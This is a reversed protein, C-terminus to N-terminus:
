RGGGACACACGACACACACGGSRGGGGRSSSPAPPPPPNTAQTVGGTFDAINGVTNRAFDQVGTIISGAFASGPLTPMDFGGGGGGGSTSPAPASPRTSVTGGGFTPDYRPWWVPVFVPGTRFVDRTRDEYKKDLMTWEMVEDYKQSKVEPTDAAEVQAWARQIIDRYYDVTEKRSFGKMKQSVSKVLNVMMKQLAKKRERNNSFEFAQLFEVEYERLGEPLPSAINLQLPEKTVVTAANKKIAAFLIMTLIKDMPEEMLIAAEISTLGRKIGHGEIAIKPPMYQLKRNKDALYGGVFILAFVGFIIGFPLCISIATAAGEGLGGTGGAPRGRVIAGEPVYSAPFSSGFIYLDNLTVSGRWVYLVRGENDLAREPEDPFGSPASHWRPEETQVGPPLHFAVTLDTEGYIIDSDFYAPAFTASAYAEDTDDPYLVERVVPVWVHLEGTDGPQIAQSGLAIAVGTGSGQFESASIYEVPQGDVEAQISGEDFNAPLGLDVFEIPGAGPDNAFTYYYDFSATGDQNWFVDVTAQPIQFYYAQAYATGTLEVAAFISLVLLLLILGPVASSRLSGPHTRLKDAKM